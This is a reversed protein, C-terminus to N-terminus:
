LLKYQAATLLQQPPPATFIGRQNDRCKQVRQLWPLLEHLVCGEKQKPTLDTGSQNCVWNAIKQLSPYVGSIGDQLIKSLQTYSHSFFYLVLNLAWTGQRRLIGTKTNLIRNVGLGAGSSFSHCRNFDTHHALLGRINKCREGCVLFQKSM